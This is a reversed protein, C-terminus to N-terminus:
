YTHLIDHLVHHAKRGLRQSEKKLDAYIARFTKRSSTDPNNSIGSLVSERELKMLVEAEADLAQMARSCLHGMLHCNRPILPTMGHLLAVTHLKYGKVIASHFKTLAKFRACRVALLELLNGAQMHLKMLLWHGPCLVESALQLTSDISSIALELDEVEINSGQLLNRLRSVVIVKNYIDVLRNDLLGEEAVEGCESCPRWGDLDSSEGSDGGNRHDDVPVCYGGYCEDNPCLMAELRRESEQQDALRKQPWEDSLSYEISCRPCMCTFDYRKKLLSRRQDTPMFWKDEALYSITLESGEPVQCLTRITMRPPNDAFQAHCNPYCSHNFKAALPFIGEFFCNRDMRIVLRSASQLSITQSDSNSNSRLFIDQLAHQMQPSSLRSDTSAIRDCESDRVPCLQKLRESMVRSFTTEKAPSLVQRVLEKYLDFADISGGQAVVGSSVCVVTGTELKTTSFIGRNYIDDPHVPREEVMLSAFVEDYLMPFESHFHQSPFKPAIQSEKGKDDIQIDVYQEFSREWGNEQFERWSTEHELRIRLLEDISM